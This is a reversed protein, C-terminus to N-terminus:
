MKGLDRARAILAQVEARAVSEPGVDPGPTGGCPWGPPAGRRLWTNQVVDAASMREAPLPQLLADLLAACAPDEPPDMGVPVQTRWANDHGLIPVPAYKYYPAGYLALFLLVGVSWM